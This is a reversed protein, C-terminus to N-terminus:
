KKKAREAAAAAIEAASFQVTRQGEVRGCMSCIGGSLADPPIEEEVLGDAELEAKYMAFCRECVMKVLKRMKNRMKRGALALSLLTPANRAACLQRTELRLDQAIRSTTEDDVQIDRRSLDAVPETERWRPPRM